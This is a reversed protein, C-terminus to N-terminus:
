RKPNAKISITEECAPSYPRIFQYNRTFKLQKNLLRMFWNSMPESIVRCMDRTDINIQRAFDLIPCDSNCRTVLETSTLKVVECNQVPVRLFELYFIRLVDAMTRPPPPKHARLWTFSMFFGVVRFLGSRKALVYAWRPIKHFLSISNRGIEPNYGSQTM